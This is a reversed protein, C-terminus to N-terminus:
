RDIWEEVLAAFMGPGTEPLFHDADPVIELSCNPLASALARSPISFAPRTREGMAVLCPTEIRALEAPGIKAPPQGGGMLLPMTRANSLYMEQRHPALRAFAAGVLQRVSAHPGESELKAGVAGFLSGADKGFAAKEDEDIIYQGLGAEYFLASAFLAPADLLAKLMVHVAYSWGVLHVDGGMSAAMECVDRAHIDTGFGAGDDRWDGDGFYSLTVARVDWTPPLLAIVPDWVREDSAAGHVFLIRPTEM